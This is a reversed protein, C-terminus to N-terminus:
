GRAKVTDLDIISVARGTETDIMINNVKPDGHIIRVPLKGRRRANELVTALGRHGEVFKSCATVGSSKSIGADILADYRRLYLPTVHFGELTDGLREPLLDSVLNHFLGLAYGVERAHETDKITDFSNAAGIFSLARWFSGRPDTWHDALNKAPLIRVTEWRRGSVPAAEIRGAVHATFIRMNQMVLEPRRFVRRNIRQLIFYKAAGSDTSVLFTDNVNGSGYERIDTVTGGPNFQQAAAAINDAPSGRTSKDKTM